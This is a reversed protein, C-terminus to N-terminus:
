SEGQQQKFIHLASEGRDLLELMWERFFRGLRAQNQLRVIEATNQPDVKELAEQAALVEQQAMGLMCKGLDSEIFRKAEDGIEAAAILEDLKEM